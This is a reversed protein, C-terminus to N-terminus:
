SNSWEARYLCHVANPTEVEFAWLDRVNPVLTQARHIAYAIADGKAFFKAVLLKEAIIPLPKGDIEKYKLLMVSYQCRVPTEKLRAAM